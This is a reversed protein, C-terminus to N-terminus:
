KERLRYATYEPQKTARAVEAVTAGAAEVQTVLVGRALDVAIQAANLADRAANVGNLARELERELQNDM